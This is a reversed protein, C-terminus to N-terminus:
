AIEWMGVAVIRDFDFALTGGHTQFTMTRPGKVSHINM